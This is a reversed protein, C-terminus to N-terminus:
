QNALLYELYRSRLQRNALARKVPPLRLIAGLIAAMARHSFLAHNDFVLDQLHGREIAMLVAKHASNLPTLVREPRAALKLAGRACAKVCVGCGLCTDEDRVALQRDPHKEDPAPTLSLADVPCAELCRKCGNCRSADVEAIFNTTHVPHLFALKRAAIMAECCCRCCNCIFSVRQRVNDGFQVLGHGQAEQLIDLARSSDIPRAFGHRILSAATANFTLCNQLPAQCARDLHAMKHRCYCTGVGVAFATKAVESAREYDLVSSSLEPPVASERVFVRGLQTQGRGFLATIFEDEVNLYQYFLEALLKQDVDGRIRMMSFEFFGAMPPPLVYLMGDPGPWDLLLARSALAQLQVDAEALSLKWIAAAKKVDFPRIPLCAVLEAERPTFLLSLIRYLVDSPPAGQSFRDLREALQRYGSRATLHAM